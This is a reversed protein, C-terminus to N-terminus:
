KKSSSKKLAELLRELHTALVEKSHITEKDTELYKSYIEDLEEPSSAQKLFHSLRELKKKEAHDLEPIEEIKKEAREQGFVDWCFGFESLCKKFANTAAAKYSNGIDSPINATKSGTAEPKTNIYHQGFQERSFTQGNVNITLRGEVLTEKTAAIYERSKIEFSFNGGTVMFVLAKMYSAKVSKYEFGDKDKKIEIESAPTKRNIFKMQDSNFIPKQSNFLELEKKSFLHNLSKM